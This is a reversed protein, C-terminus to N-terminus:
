KTVVFKGQAFITNEIMLRYLYNGTALTSTNLKCQTGNVNEEMVMSGTANYVVVKGNFSENLEIHLVETAPNPYPNSKLTSFLNQKIESGGCNYKLSINDLWMTSGYQGECEDLKEWKVGASAAFILRIEHLGDPENIEPIPISFKTWENVTEKIIKLENWVPGDYDYFGINILASDGNVPNYKFYGELACPNDNEWLRTIKVGDGGPKLFEEVFQKSITGVMGPLFVWRGAAIKGSVLKACYQGHQANGERLATLDPKGGDNKLDYLSNLTYFLDTEFDLYDGYHISNKKKWTEFSANPIPIQQAKCFASLLFCFAFLLTIKKM